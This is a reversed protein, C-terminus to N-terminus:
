STDHSNRFPTKWEGQHWLVWVEWSWADDALFVVYAAWSVTTRCLMNVHVQWNPKETNLLRSGQQQVEINGAAVVVSMSLKSHNGEKVCLQFSVKKRFKCRVPPKNNNYNWYNRPQSDFRYSLLVLRQRKQELSVLLMKTGKVKFCKLLLATYNKSDRGGM